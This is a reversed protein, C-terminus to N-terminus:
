AQARAGGAVACGHMWSEHGDDICSLLQVSAMHWLSVRRACFV